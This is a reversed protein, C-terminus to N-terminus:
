VWALIGGAIGAYLSEFYAGTAVGCVCGVVVAIWFLERFKM